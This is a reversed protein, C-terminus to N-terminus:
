SIKLGYFDYFLNYKGNNKTVQYRTLLGPIENYNAISSKTFCIEINIQLSCFLVIGFCFFMSKKCIPGLKHQCPKPSTMSFRFFHM